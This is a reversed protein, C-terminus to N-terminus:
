LACVRACVCVKSIRKLHSLIRLNAEADGGEEEDLVAIVTRKGGATVDEFNVGDLAAV